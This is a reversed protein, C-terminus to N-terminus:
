AAVHLGVEKALAVARYGRDWVRFRLGGNETCPELEALLQGTAALKKIHYLTLQRSMGLLLGLEAVTWGTTSERLWMLIRQQKM